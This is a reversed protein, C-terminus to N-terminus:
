QWEMFSTVTNEGVTCGSTCLLSFVNLASEAFEKDGFTCYALSKGAQACAMLQILAVVAFISVTM